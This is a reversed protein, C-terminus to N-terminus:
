FIIMLAFYETINSKMENINCMKPTLECNLFSNHVESNSNRLIVRQIKINFIKKNVHQITINLTSNMMEM